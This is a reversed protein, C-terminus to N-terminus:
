DSQTEGANRRAFFPVQRSGCDGQGQNASAKDICHFLDSKPIDVRTKGDAISQGHQIVIM